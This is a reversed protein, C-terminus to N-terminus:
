DGAEDTIVRSLRARTDDDLRDIVLATIDLIDTIAIRWADAETLGDTTTM